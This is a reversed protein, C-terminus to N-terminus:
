EKKASESDETKAKEDDSSGSDKKSSPAEKEGEADHKKPPKKETAGEEHDKDGEAHDAKKHHHKKHPKKETAGEGHDKDGEAHDTKKHSKSSRNTPTSTAEGEEHDKDGEAAEDKKKHHHKGGKSDRVGSKSDRNNTPTAPATDGSQADDKEEDHKHGHHFLKGVMSSSKKPATKSRSLPNGSEGEAGDAHGEEGEKTEEHDHKEHHILKGLISSGKKPPKKEREEEEDAEQRREIEKQLEDVIKLSEEQGKVRDKLMDLPTQKHNNELSFVHKCGKFYPLLEEIQKISCIKFVLHLATNGHIDIREDFKFKESELLYKVIDWHENAFYIAHHLLTSGDNDVHALDAETESCLYALIDLRHFHIAMHPATWGYRHPQNLVQNPTDSKSVFEKFQDLSGHEIVNKINHNGM